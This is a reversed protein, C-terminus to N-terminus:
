GDRHRRQIEVEIVELEDVVAEPVGDAVPQEHLDGFPEAVGHAGAVRHRAHATVLEDDHGLPHFVVRGGHREGSPDPGCHCFRDQASGM